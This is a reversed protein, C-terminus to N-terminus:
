AHPVEQLGVMRDHALLESAEAPTLHRRRTIAEEGREVPRSAGNPARERDHVADPRETELDPGAQMRALDLPDPSSMRPSATWMPARIAASAPGPSTSTERVTLSRTTPEPRANASRPM